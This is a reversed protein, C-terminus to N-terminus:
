LAHQRRSSYANHRDEDSRLDHAMNHRRQRHYIVAKGLKHNDKNDVLAESMLKMTVKDGLDCDLRFTAGTQPRTM